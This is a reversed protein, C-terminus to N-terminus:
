EIPDLPNREGTDFQVATVTLAVHGLFVGKEVRDILKPTIGM